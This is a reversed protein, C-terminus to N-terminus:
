QLGNRTGILKSIKGDTCNITSLGWTHMILLAIHLGKKKFGCYLFTLIFRFAFAFGFGFRFAFRFAFRFGFRFAFRFIFTFFWM